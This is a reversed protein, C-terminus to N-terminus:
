IKYSGIPFSFCLQIELARFSHQQHIHALEQFLYWLGISLIPNQSQILIVRSLLESYGQSQYQDVIM